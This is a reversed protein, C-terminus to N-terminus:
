APQRDGNGPAAPFRIEFRNGLPPDPRYVISGGHAHVIERVLSLGLGSGTRQHSSDVQYFRDFIKGRASAPISPGSNSIAFVVESQERHLQYSITGAPQNYKVANTFLNLFLRRLHSPDGRLFIDAAIDTEITLGRPAALLDIDEGLDRLLQSLDTEAFDHSARGSDFRALLLLQEIIQTMRDAEQAISLLRTEAEESQQNEALAREIEGKIITLPTSLEHSADGAFQRAQDYNREIRALMSNLVQTFQGIEDDARGVPLRKSLDGAGIQAAETTARRIPMLARGAVLWSLWATLGAVLPLIIIQAAILDTLVDEFEELNHTVIIYRGAVERGMSRWRTTTAGRYFFAQDAPAPHTAMASPFHPSISIPKGQLNFIGQALWPEFEDRIFEDADLEGAMLDATLEELEGELHADIAELDELYVYAVTSVALTLLACGTITATTLSIRARLSLPKM